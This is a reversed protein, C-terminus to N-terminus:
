QLYIIDHGEKRKRRIKTITGSLQFISIPYTGKVRQIFVFTVDYYRGQCTSIDDYIYKFNLSNTMNDLYKIVHLATFKESM